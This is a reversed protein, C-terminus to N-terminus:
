PRATRWWFAHRRITPATVAAAYALRERPGSLAEIGRVTRARSSARPGVYSAMWRRDRRSPVFSRAWHLAPHDPSWRLTCSATLLARAVVAEARASTVRDLVSGWTQASPLTLAVDRLPVLRPPDDGLAAHYCAHLFRGSRDLVPVSRGGLPLQATRALLEDPDLALGWPGLALTRHVDVETGDPMPFAAGKGFRRDFGRAPEAYRRRGGAITLLRHVAGLASASVLVDLDGFSRLAPDLEDLHAIAPGKVVAWSTSPPLSAEVTLLRREIALCTAMASRHAAAIARREDDDAEIFGELVATALLGEM